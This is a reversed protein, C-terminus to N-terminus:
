AKRLMLYKAADRLFDAQSGLSEISLLCRNVQKEALKKTQEVGLLAPYTAKDKVLDVGTQKGMLQEDGTLDLLDDTIQFALGFASAYDGLARLEKNGAGALLGGSRAAASFLAGTKHNHIYELTKESVRIGESKLDVVQGGILGRSGAASGVEQIVQLVVQPEFGKEQMQALTEFALTLLADGALIAVAEGYAKHCSPKGRRYDDDDMAPLDDHILSYTHIMEVAAAASLVKQEDTGLAEAVAMTLAGRLRKGGAFISYRMAEHVHVPYTSVSPLLLDLAANIQEAKCQLAKEWNM